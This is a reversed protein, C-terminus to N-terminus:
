LIQDLLWDIAPRVLSWLDGVTGLMANVDVSLSIGPILGAVALVALLVLVGLFRLWTGLRQALLLINRGHYLAVVTSIVLVISGGVGLAGLAEGLIM